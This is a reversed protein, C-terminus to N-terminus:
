IYDQSEINRNTCKHPLLYVKEILISSLLGKIISSSKQHFVVESALCCKLSERMKLVLVLYKVTELCHSNFIGLNLGTLDQSFSNGVGDGGRFSFGSPTPPVSMSPISVNLSKKIAKYVLDIIQKCFIAKNKMPM